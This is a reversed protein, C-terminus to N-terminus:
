FFSLRMIEGGSVEEREGEWFFEISVKEEKM